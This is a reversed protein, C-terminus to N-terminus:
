GATAGQKAEAAEKASLEELMKKYKEVTLYHQVFPLDICSLADGDMKARGNDTVADIEYALEGFLIKGLQHRSGIKARDGFRRRWLRWVEDQKLRDTMREIKAATRAITRDLRPVDIRMGDAEVQSLAVVGEHFLDYAQKTTPKM